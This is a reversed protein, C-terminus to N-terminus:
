ASSPCDHSEGKTLPSLTLFHVFDSGIGHGAVSLHDPDGGFAAINDHLWRLAAIVDYLGYNGRKRGDTSSTIPLFGTKDGSGPTLQMVKECCACMCCLTLYTEQMVILGLKFLSCLFSTCVYRRLGWLVTRHVALRSLESPLLILFIRMRSILDSDERSAQLHIRFILICKRGKQQRQKAAPMMMCTM